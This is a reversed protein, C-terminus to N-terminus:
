EYVKVFGAVKKDFDPVCRASRMLQKGDPTLGVVTEMEKGVFFNEGVQTATIRRFSNSPRTSLCYLFAAILKKQADLFILPRPPVFFLDVTHVVRSEQLTTFTEQAFPPDNVIIPNLLPQNGSKEGRVFFDGILIAAVRRSDISELGVPTSDNSSAADDHAKRFVTSCSTILPLYSLLFWVSANKVILKIKTVDM